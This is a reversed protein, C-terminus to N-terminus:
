RLSPLLAQLASVLRNIDQQTNYGQVSVRIFKQGNWDIMPVEIRFEDYLRTKLSTLDVEAPLRVACM